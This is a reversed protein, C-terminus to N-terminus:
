DLGDSDSANQPEASEISAKVAEALMIEAAKAQNENLESSEEEAAPAPEPPVPIFPASPSEEDSAAPAATPSAEANDSEGGTDNPKKAMSQRLNEEMGEM